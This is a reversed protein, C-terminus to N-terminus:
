FEIGMMELLTSSVSNIDLVMALGYADKEIGLATSMEKVLKEQGTEKVVSALVVRDSLGFGFIDAIESEATGKAKFIISNNLKKRSVFDELIAQQEDECIALLINIKEVSKAEKKM